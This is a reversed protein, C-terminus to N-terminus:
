EAEQGPAREIMHRRANAEAETLDVVQAGRYVNRGIHLTFGGRVVFSATEREDANSPAVPPTAAPKRRPQKM